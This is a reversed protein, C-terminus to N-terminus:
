TARTKIADLPERLPPDPSRLAHTRPHPVRFM